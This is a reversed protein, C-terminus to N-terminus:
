CCTIVNLLLLRCCGRAQRYRRSMLNKMLAEDLATTVAETM